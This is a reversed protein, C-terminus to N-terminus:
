GGRSNNAFSSEAFALYFYTASSGNTDSGNTRLKFGSAYHEVLNSADTVDVNTANWYMNYNTPNYGLRANDSVVWNGTGSTKKILILAPKFGLFVYPGTSSGNGVFTGTRSVGDVSHFCYAIMTVTNSQGLNSITTSTPAGYDSSLDAKANTNELYLVDYSADIATTTFSWSGSTSRTKYLVVSPASSLGHGVRNNNSGDATWGVISFGLSTNASVSSTIDGSSNSSASGNAKWCWAVYNESSQNVNQEDGGSNPAVTFGDSGVASVHGYNAATVGEAGNTNSQLGKSTAFTRVVDFLAHGDTDSRNKIWIFDPQFGVGTIAQSSAGNGTYTVVNFHNKPNVSVQTLNKVCLARYNTPVPYYFDGFDAGDKNGQATVLGGFSSDQGFNFFVQESNTDSNGVYPVALGTIQSSADYGSTGAAVQSITLTSESSANASYWQGNKSWWILNNSADYAIGIIDNQAISPLGEKSQNSANFYIDGGENIGIADGSYTSLISEEKKIGIYPNGSSANNSIQRVEWYWKGTSVAISGQATKTYTSLSANLNSQLYDTGGDIELPNLTSFNNNPNDLFQDSAAINTLSFNNSNGSTDAGLNSSNSFDLKFGNNGYSGSYNRPVWAGTTPNVKGFSTYSVASGDIFHCLALLGDWYYTGSTGLGGVRHVAGDINIVNTGFTPNDRAQLVGNVYIKIKNAESSETGDWIGVMHYWGNSDRFVADTETQTSTDNTPNGFTIFDDDASQKGYIYFGGSGTASTTGRGFLGYLL